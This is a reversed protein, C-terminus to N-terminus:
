FFRATARRLTWPGMRPMSETVGADVRFRERAHEPVPNEDADRATEILEGIGLHCCWMIQGFNRLENRFPDDAEDAGELEV